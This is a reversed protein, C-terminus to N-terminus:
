SDTDLYRELDVGEALEEDLYGIIEDAYKQGYYENADERSDVGEPWYERQSRVFRFANEEVFREMARRFAVYLKLPDQERGGNKSEAM